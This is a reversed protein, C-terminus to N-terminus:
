VWVWFEFCVADVGGVRGGDRAVGYAPLLGGVVQVCFGGKDTGSVPEAIGIGHIIGVISVVGFFCPTVM